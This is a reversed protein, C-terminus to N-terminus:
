ANVSTQFRLDESEDTVEMVGETSGDPCGMESDKVTM